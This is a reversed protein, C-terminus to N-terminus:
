YSLWRWRCTLAVALVRRSGAQGGDGLFASRSRAGRAASVPFLPAVSAIPASRPREGILWRVARRHGVDPYETFHSQLIADMSSM